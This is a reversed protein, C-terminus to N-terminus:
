EERRARVIVGPPTTVRLGADWRASAAVLLGAERASREIAAAARPDLRAGHLEKLVGLGGRQVDGHLPDGPRPHPREYLQAGLDPQPEAHQGPQVAV